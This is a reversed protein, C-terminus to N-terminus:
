TEMFVIIKYVQRSSMKYYDATAEVSIAKANKVTEKKYREYIDLWLPITLSVVGKTVLPHLNM